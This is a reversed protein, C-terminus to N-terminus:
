KPDASLTPNYGESSVVVFRGTAILIVNIAM